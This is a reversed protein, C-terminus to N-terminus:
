KQVSCLFDTYYSGLGGASQKTHKLSQKLNM